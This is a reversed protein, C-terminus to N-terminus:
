YGRKIQRSINFNYESNGGFGLFSKMVDHINVRNGLKKWIINVCCRGWEVRNRKIM